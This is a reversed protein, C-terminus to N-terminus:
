EEIDGEDAGEGAGQKIAVPALPRSKLLPHIGEFDEPLLLPVLYPHGDFVIGFMDHTEREHWDAAKWIGIASPVHPDEASCRVKITVNHKKTTSWLHYVVELGGAEWDVGTLSRLFDFQLDPHGKAAELVRKLDQRGVTIVVDLLAQKAEFRVGSLAGAFLDAIGGPWEALGERETISPLNPAFHSAPAAPQENTV